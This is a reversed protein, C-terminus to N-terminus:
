EIVKINVDLTQEGTNEVEQKDKYNFNNKLSFISGTPNYKGLLMNQVVNSEIKTKARKITASFKIDDEDTYEMYYLLAHRDEFGLALALGAITYPLEKIDCQMFYNDIAKQMEEVSKYKRPRGAGM